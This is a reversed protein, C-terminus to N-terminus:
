VYVLIFDNMIVIVMELNMLFVVENGNVKIQYFISKTIKMFFVEEDTIIKSSIILLEEIAEWDMDFDDKDLLNEKKVIWDQM